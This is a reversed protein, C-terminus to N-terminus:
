NGLSFSNVLVPENPNRSLLFEWKQTSGAREADWGATAAEWEGQCQAKWNQPGRAGGQVRTGVCPVYGAPLPSLCSTVQDTVEVSAKAGGECSLGRGWSAASTLGAPSMQEGSSLIPGLESVGLAIEPINGYVNGGSGPSGQACASPAQRSCVCIEKSGLGDTPVSIM